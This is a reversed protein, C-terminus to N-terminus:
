RVSQIPAARRGKAATALRFIPFGTRLHWMRISQCMRGRELHESCTLECTLVTSTPHVSM